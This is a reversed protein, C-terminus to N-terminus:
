AHRKHRAKHRKHKHHSAHKRHRQKRPKRSPPNATPQNGTTSTSGSSAPGAPDVCTAQGLTYNNGPGDQDVVNGFTTVPSGVGDATSASPGTLTQGVRLGLESVPVDVEVAGNAGSGFSGTASSTGSPTFSGGASLMTVTGDMYTVNGSSDVQVDVANPGSDGSPNTWYFAYQMFNSGTPISKSLDIENMVVRLKTRDSTLGLTGQVLDLQNDQGGNVDPADASSDYFAYNCAPPSSAAAFATTPAFGCALM